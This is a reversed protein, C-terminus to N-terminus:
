GARVLRGRERGLRSVHGVFLRRACLRRGPGCSRGCLARLVGRETSGVHDILAARTAPGRPRTPRGSGLGGPRTARPGNSDAAGRVRSVGDSRRSFIWRDLIRTRNRAARDDRSAARPRLGAGRRLVAPLAWRARAPRSSGPPFPTRPCRPPHTPLRAHPLRPFKRSSGPSPSPPVCHFLPSPYPPVRPPPFRRLSPTHSACLSIGDAAWRGTASGRAVRRTREEEEAM